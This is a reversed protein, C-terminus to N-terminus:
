RTARPPSREISRATSRSASSSSPCSSSPRRWRSRGQMAVVAPVGVEALKPGLATLIRPDGSQGKGASECSALVVLLPQQRLGSVGEVLETALVAAAGGGQELLLLPKDDTKRMIGHCVLYLIDYGDRLAEVIAPLTVRGPKAPDSLLEVKRIDGLAKKVRQSEAAVDIPALPEGNQEYESVGPPDAIVILASLDGRPRPM